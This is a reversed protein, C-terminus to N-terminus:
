TSKPKVCAPLMEEYYPQCLDIKRMMEAPLEHLPVPKQESYSTKIFGSSTYLTECYKDWDKVPMKLDVKGAEWSTMHPEFPIEIAECYLKMMEEPSNQLDAANIVITSKGLTKTIYNYMDYLEQWGLSETEYGFPKKVFAKHQSYAVRAPDRILFTHQADGLEQLVQQYQFSDKPPLYKPLEKAFVIDVGPYQQLLAQTVAAYTPEIHLYDPKVALETTATPGFYYPYNFLEFFCKISTSKLTTMSTYFASSLSRPTSWLIIQRPM